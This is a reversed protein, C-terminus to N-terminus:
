VGVEVATKPDLVIELLDDDSTSSSEKSHASVASPKIVVYVQPAQPAQNVVCPEGPGVAGGVAGGVPTLSILSGQDSISTVYIQPSDM